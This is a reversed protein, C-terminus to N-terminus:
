NISLQASRVEAMYRDLQPYERYPSKLLRGSTLLVSNHIEGPYVIKRIINAALNRYAFVLAYRVQTSAPDTVESLWDQMTGPSKLSEEFNKKEDATGELEETLESLYRDPSLRAQILYIDNGRTGGRNLYENILQLARQPDENSVLMAQVLPRTEQLDQELVPYVHWWSSMVWHEHLLTYLRSLKMTTRLIQRYSQLATSVVEDKIQLLPAQNWNTATLFIPNALGELAFSAIAEDRKGQGLLSMGLTYYTYNSSDRPSLRVAERAYPEAEAANDSDILLAALNQNFWPDNPAAQVTNKLHAIALLRLEQLDDDSEVGNKLELASKAALASYTPDWPVLQSAKYWKADAEVLNSAKASQVAMHSLYLGLDVRTWLQFNMCFILLLVMSAGRRKLNSLNLHSTSIQTTDAISILMATTSLLTIAIGINELQYDSLSSVSYGFWSAGVSYLLIRGHSEKINRHLHFGLRLLTAMFTVYAAIGLLGLEAAIQAPTNHLQQIVNLGSGAEVPRYNGYGRSLNGPGVCLFPHEKLINRASELMFIRDKTPGDSVSAVSISSKEVAPNVSFLTRVRPNSVLALSMILSFCIGIIIWRRRSNKKSLLIGLAVSVIGLVLIGVLAGRSGSVYLAVAVILSAVSLSWRRWGSQSLSFGLVIPFLLLAYGGVFNHHGLPQANRIASNFNESLWMNASPRWMALSIISTVIGSFSLFMWLFHQAAKESRLWNVLFYLVGTYNVVLLFNWAAVAKFPSTLASLLVSLLILSIAADLGHGLRTFPSHFKRCLTFTCGGLCLFSGQWILVYPWGVMLSYSNSLWTFALLALFGVVGLWYIRSVTASKSHPTSIYELRGVSDM